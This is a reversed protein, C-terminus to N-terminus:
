GTDVNANETGLMEATQALAPASNWVSPDDRAVVDISEIRGVVRSDLSMAKEVRSLFADWGLVPRAIAGDSFGADAQVASDGEPLGAEVVAPTSAGSDSRM